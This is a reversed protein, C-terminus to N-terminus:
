LTQASLNLYVALDGDNLTHLLKLTSGNLGAIQPGTRRQDDGTKGGM